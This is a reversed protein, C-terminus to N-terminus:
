SSFVGQLESAIHAAGVPRSDLDLIRLGTLPPYLGPLAALSTAKPM